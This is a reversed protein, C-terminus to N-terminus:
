DHKEGIRTNWKKIANEFADIYTEFPVLTIDTAKFIMRRGVKCRECWVQASLEVSTGCSKYLEVGTEPMHGCFPCPNINNKELDIM